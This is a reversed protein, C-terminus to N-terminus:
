FAGLFFAESLSLSGSSSMGKNRLLREKVKDFITIQLAPKTATMLYASFGRYIGLVGKNDRLLGKVVESVSGSSRDTLMRTAVRDLPMTAPVRAIDSMYGAVASVVIGSGLKSKLYTFVLYYIFKEAAVMSGLVSFGRYFGLPGSKRMIREAITRATEKTAVQTKQVTEIPMTCIQALVGGQAAGLAEVLVETAAM